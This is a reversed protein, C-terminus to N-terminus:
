NNKVYEDIVEDKEDVDCDLFIKTFKSMAIEDLEEFVM